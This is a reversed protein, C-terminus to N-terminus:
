HRVYQPLEWLTSAESGEDYGKVMRTAGCDRCWQRRLNVSKFLHEGSTTFLDIPGPHSCTSLKETATLRETATAALPQLSAKKVKEIADRASNAYISVCWTVGRVPRENTAYATEVILSVEYHKMM